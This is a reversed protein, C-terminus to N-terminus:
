SADLEDAIEGAVGLKRVIEFRENRAVIEEIDVAAHGPVVIFQASDVHVAEYEGPLLAIREACDLSACECVITVTTPDEAVAQVREHVRRNMERFLAENM